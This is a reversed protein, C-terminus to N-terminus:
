YDDPKAEISFLRFSHRHHGTTGFQEIAKYHLMTAYGKNKKWGYEPIQDHLRLMLDDRYCKALISAAAISKIKGDGKVICTHPIGPYHKFRNGDILLHGPRIPLKSIALHMAMFSAQLINIQDIVIPSVEAISWAIAKDKIEPVLNYRQVAKLVKSDALGTISIKEPLIVAAAVVPGALCGRGAEDCGAELRGKVLYSKLM